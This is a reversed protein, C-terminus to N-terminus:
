ILLEALHQQNTEALCSKFGEICGPPKSYVTHLLFCNKEHPDQISLFKEYDYQSIVDKSLLYDTLGSDSSDMKEILCLHAEKIKGMSETNM